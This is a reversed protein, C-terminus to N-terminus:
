LLVVTHISFMEELLEFVQTEALEKDVSDLAFEKEKELKAALKDVQALEKCLYENKCALNDVQTTIEVKSDLLKM